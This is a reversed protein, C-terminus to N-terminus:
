RPLGAINLRYSAPHHHAVFPVPVVTRPNVKKRDIASQGRVVAHRGQQAAELWRIAQRARAAM